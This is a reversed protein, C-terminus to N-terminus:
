CPNAFSVLQIVLAKPSLLTAIGEFSDQLRSFYDDIQERPGFTFFSAYHGDPQNLILFPAPSERRGQIQWRNYLVHVGPYPPSTLVLTPRRWGRLLHRYHPLKAGDALLLRRSALLQRRSSVGGALLAERYAEMDDCMEEVNL